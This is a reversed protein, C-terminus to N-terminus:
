RRQPHLSLQGGDVSDEDATQFNIYNRGTSFPQQRAFADRICQRFEAAQPEGPEWM